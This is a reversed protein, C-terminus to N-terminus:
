GTLLSLGRDIFYGITPLSLVITTQIIYSEAHALHKIYRLARM